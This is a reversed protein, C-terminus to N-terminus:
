SEKGCIGHNSVADLWYYLDEVERVQVMQGFEPYEPCIQEYLDPIAEFLDPAYQLTKENNFIAGYIIEAEVLDQFMHSGYSLEPMYGARHDIQWVSKWRERISASYRNMNEQLHM